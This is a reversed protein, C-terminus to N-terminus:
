SEFSKQIEKFTNMIDKHYIFITLIFSLILIINIDLYQFMLIVIICILLLIKINPQIITKIFKSTNIM